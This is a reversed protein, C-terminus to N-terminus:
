RGAEAERRAAMNDAAWRNLVIEDDALPAIPQKDADLFPGLPPAARLDLGTITSYPIKAHGDGASIENALYTFTPQGDLPAFAAKAAADTVADLLMRDSSFNFYRDDISDVPAITLGYDALTPHLAARLREDDAPPPAVDQQHDDFNVFIVNAQGPQDLATQLTDLTVFANYPFQQNLHISFGCIGADNLAADTELAPIARITDKKRGLASEAPIESSSRYGFSSRLATTRTEPLAVHDPYNKRGEFRTRLGNEETNDWFKEQSM